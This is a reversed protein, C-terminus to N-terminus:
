LLELFSGAACGETSLYDEVPLIVGDAPDVIVGYGVAVLHADFPHPHPKRWNVVLLGEDDDTFAPKPRLRVGLMKAMRLLTATQIGAKARAKPEAKAAAVYVDEYSQELLTALAAVACDGAARQLVLRM